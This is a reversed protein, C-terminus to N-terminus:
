KRLHEMTIINGIAEGLDQDSHVLHLRQTRTDRFQDVYTYEVIWGNEASHLRINIPNYGNFEDSGHMALERHIKPIAINRFADPKLPTQAGVMMVEQNEYRRAMSVITQKLWNM